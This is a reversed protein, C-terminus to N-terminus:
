FSICLLKKNEFPIYTCINELYTCSNKLSFIHVFIKWIHVLRKNKFFFSFTNVFHTKKLFKWIHPILQKKYSNFENSVAKKEKLLLPDQWTSAFSWMTYNDVEWKSVNSQYTSSGTPLHHTYSHSHTTNPPYQSHADRSLIAGIKTHQAIWTLRSKDLYSCIPKLHSYPMHLINPVCLGPYSKGLKPLHAKAYRPM